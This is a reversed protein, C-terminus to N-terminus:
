SLDDRLSAHSVVSLSFQFRFSDDCSLAPWLVSSNFRVNVRLVLAARVPNPSCAGPFPNRAGPLWAPTVGPAV